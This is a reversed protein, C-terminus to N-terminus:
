ETVPSEKLRDRTTSFLERKEHWDLDDTEVHVLMAKSLTMMGLREFLARPYTMHRQGNHTITVAQEPLAYPRTPQWDKKYKGSEGLVWYRITVVGGSSLRGRYTNSYTIKEDAEPDLVDDKDARKYKRLDMLKTATGNITVGRLSNGPNGEVSKPREDRLLFPMVPDFMIANGLVYLSEKPAWAAAGSYRGLRYDIMTVHTGHWDRYKEPLQGPDFRRVPGREGPLVLYQYVGTKSFRDENLPNYRVITWGVEDAQSPALLAPNRRSIFVTYTAFAYSSAGGWGYAGMLYLKDRKNSENLSLLTTPFVDPHQGIGTDEIVITPDTATGARVTVVLREALPRRQDPAVDWVHGGPVGLYKESAKRPNPVGYDRAVEVENEIIADIGNIVKEAWGDAPEAGVNVPAYNNARDGLPRWNSDPLANLLAQVDSATKLDFLQEVPTQITTAPTM